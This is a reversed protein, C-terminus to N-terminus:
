RVREEKSARRNKRFIFNKSLSGYNRNKKSYGDRACVRAFDSCVIGALAVSIRHGTAHANFVPRIIEAIFFESRRMASLIAKVARVAHEFSVVSAEGTGRSKGSPVQAM